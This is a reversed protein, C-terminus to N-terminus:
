WPDATGRMLHEPPSVRAAGALRLELEGGVRDPFLPVNDGEGRASPAILFDAVARVARGLQLCRERQADTPVDVVLEEHTVDWAIRDTEDTLDAYLGNSIVVTLMGLDPPLSTVGQRGMRAALEEWATEADSATYIAGFENSPNYRGGARQSGALTQSVYMEFNHRAQDLYGVELVRVVEFPSGVPTLGFSDYDDIV